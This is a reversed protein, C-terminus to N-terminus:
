KKVEQYSDKFIDPKCPYFEGYIGKIIFDGYRVLMEGELTSLILMGESAVYKYPFDGLFSMAEEINETFFQIAEIEIPRKIYKRM